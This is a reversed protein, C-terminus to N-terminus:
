LGFGKVEGFKGLLNEDQCITGNAANTIEDFIFDGLWRVSPNYENSPNSLANKDFKVKLILSKIAIKM